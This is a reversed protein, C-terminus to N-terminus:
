HSDVSCHVRTDLGHSPAILREPSHRGLTSRESSYGGRGGHSRSGRGSRRFLDQRAASYSGRLARDGCVRLEELNVAGAHPPAEAYKRTSEVFVALTSYKYGLAVEFRDAM